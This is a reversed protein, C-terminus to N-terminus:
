NLESEPDSDPDPDPVTIPATQDPLYLPGSQGCGPLVLGAMMILTLTLLLLPKHM